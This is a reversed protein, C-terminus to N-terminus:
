QHADDYVGWANIVGPPKFPNQRDNPFLLHAMPWDSVGFENGAPAILISSGNLSNV